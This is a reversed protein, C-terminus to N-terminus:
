SSNEWTAGRVECFEIVQRGDPFAQYGHVPTINPHELCATQRAELRFREGAATNAVDDFQKLTLVRGLGEQRANLLDKGLARHQPLRARITRCSRTPSGLSMRATRRSSRRGRTWRSSGGWGALRCRGREGERLSAMPDAGDLITEGQLTILKRLRGANQDERSNGQMEDSM